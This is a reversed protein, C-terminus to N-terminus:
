EDEDELGNAQIWYEILSTLSARADPNIQLMRWLLERYSDDVRAVDDLLSNLKTQLQGSQVLTQYDTLHSFAHKGTAVTYLVCGLSWIDMSPRSIQQKQQYFIWEPATCEDLVLGNDDDDLDNDVQRSSQYFGTLHWDTVTSAQDYFFSSTNIKRHIWGHDHVHQLAKLMSLTSWAKFSFQTYDVVTPQQSTTDFLLHQLTHHLHFPSTIWIYQYGGNKTPTTLTVADFTMLYNHQDQQQLSTTTQLLRSFWTTSSSTFYHITCATPPYQHPMTNHTRTASRTTYGEPFGSYIPAYLTYAFSELLLTNNANTPNYYDDDPASNNIRRTLSALASIADFVGDNDVQKANNSYVTVAVNDNDPVSRYTTPAAILKEPLFHRDALVIDVDDEKGIHRQQQLLLRQNKQQQRRRSRWICFGFLGLLIGGVICGVVIGVIAGTSLSSGSSANVGAAPISSVEPNKDGTTASTFLSPQTSSSLGHNGQSDIADIWVMSTDGSAPTLSGIGVISNSSTHDDSIQITLKTVPVANSSLTMAAPIMEVLLSKASTLVINGGVSVAPGTNDIASDLNFTIDGGGNTSTAITTPLARPILAAQTGSAIPVNGGTVQSTATGGSGLTGMGKSSSQSSNVQHAISQTITIQNKFPYGIVYLKSADNPPVALIPHLTSDTTPPLIVTTNTGIFSTAPAYQIKYQPDNNSVGLVAYCPTTSPSLCRTPIVSLPQNISSFYDPRNLQCNGTVPFQITLASASNLNTGVLVIAPPQNIVTCASYVFGTLPQLSCGITTDGTTTAPTSNITYSNNPAPNIAYVHGNIIGSCGTAEPTTSITTPANTAM